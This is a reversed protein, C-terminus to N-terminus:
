NTEEKEKEFDKSTMSILEGKSIEGQEEGIYVDDEKDWDSRDSANDNSEDNDVDLIDSPTEKSKVADSSHFRNM